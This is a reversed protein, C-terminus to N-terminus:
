RCRGQSPIAGKKDMDGDCLVVKIYIFDLFHNINAFITMSM